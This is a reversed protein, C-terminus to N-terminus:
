LESKQKEHSASSTFMVAKQQIVYGGTFYSVPQSAGKLQLRVQVVMADGIKDAGVTNYIGPLMFNMKENLWGFLNPTNVNGPYIAAPRFISLTSFGIANSSDEMVGKVHNYWGGGAGTRTM